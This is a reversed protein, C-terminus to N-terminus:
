MVARTQGRGLGIDGSGQNYHPAVAENRSSAVLLLQHQRATVPAGPFM